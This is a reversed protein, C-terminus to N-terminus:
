RKSIEVEKEYFGLVSQYILSVKIEEDKKEKYEKKLIEEINKNRTLKGVEKGLGMLKLNATGSKTQFLKLLEYLLECKEKKNFEQFSHTAKWKKWDKVTKQRLKYYLTNPDLLKNELANYLENLDNESLFSDEISEIKFTTISIIKKMIEEEKSSLILQMANKFLIRDNSKGTLRMFYGNMKFLTGIKINRILVKPEEIQLKEELFKELQKPDKQIAKRLYIPIGELTRTTKGKEKGEVLVFYSINVSKYGGYKSIDQLRDEGKLPFQGKGKKLPQIDFFEGKAERVQESVLINNKQMTNKVIGITQEKKWATEGTRKNIINFDFMRRLNYKEEKKYKSHEIFLRSDIGFKTYYANGVVVNLYADKAHHYDNIERCKIMKYDKRFRSVNNAKVYVIETEPLIQKLITGIAKTSQRTEVLQRAIFGALEDDSFGDSRTLREYKEKSIFKKNLLQKWFGRRAQRINEELPYKDKKNQNVQKKVLVINDFSDDVVKSQPYIHDIDYLNNNLLDEFAIREGTYMCRGLQIFYLYIKKSRLSIDNENKLLEILEKEEKCAKYLEVLQARRSVTRYSKQKERAVELFLRKPQKGMIKCVEDVVKLGQWVQKKVSTSLSYDELIKYSIQNQSFTQGMVEVNEKEIEKSFSYKSGLLQMLNENTEWLARIINCKEGIEPVNTQIEELFRKSLRGWGTFSCNCIKDIQKETLFPYMRSMRGKLIKKDDHFLSINLIIMEKDVETLNAENLNQKFFHYGDLSGKFDGDIGTIDVDKKAKGNQILYDKLKKQTVKIHKEFLNEYLEKKLSVSIKDGDLRLNNLENLVVFKSYLLSHKPLVDEKLLYTCKNTMRRIFKEASEELNVVEEFNWPYIKEQSNRVVWHSGNIGNLPGVYYPIRFKFIQKIKDGKRALLPVRKSLNDIIKELEYYHVQYPLVGNEISVQKPLLTREEIKKIIEIEDKEVINNKITALQKELFTCFEEQTCKKEGVGIYSPYNGKQEKKFVTDYIEKTGYMKIMRKLKNLDNKHEEYIKIKCTSITEGTKLITKLTNWDYFAKWLNVIEMKEGLDKELKEIDEPSIKSFNIKNTEELQPFIKSLDMDGGSLLKCIEERDKLKETNFLQKLREKKENKTLTKEQFLNEVDQYKCNIDWDFEDRMCAKFQVFINEFDKVQDITGEWLFHGRNKVMHHLALYIFRVDPTEKTTMLYQRLHYITKFQKHYDKDTYDKDVFLAYPLDPKQGKSDRKDEFAYQSEKLRHFFGDDIKNIEEAFIEQLLQIRWKKRDLRRRSSRATRRDKALNAQSFLRTGWMAQGKRREIQYESNTVAWGVSATGLDLGLYYDGNM